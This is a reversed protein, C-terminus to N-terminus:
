GIVQAILTSLADLEQRKPLHKILSGYGVQSFTEPVMQIPLYGLLFVALLVDGVDKYFDCAYLIVSSEKCMRYQKQVLNDFGDSV